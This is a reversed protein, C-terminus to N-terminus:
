SFFRQINVIGVKVEEQLTFHLKKMVVLVEFKSNCNKM